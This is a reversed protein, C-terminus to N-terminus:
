RDVEINITTGMGPSSSFQMNGNLMRVRTELNVLGLGKKTNRYDFGIGNDEVLIHLRSGQEFIQIIALSARAHSIINQLIEQLMRYISLKASQEAVDLESHIQMDIRLDPYTRNITEAYMTLAEELTFDTVVDPMLNHATKRIQESTENLYGVVEEPLEEQGTSLRMKIVALMGGIGDHLERAIRGREIEEGEMKAKLVSIRSKNKFHWYFTLSLILVLSLIAGVSLMQANKHELARNQKAILLEKQALAKDKQATRFKVELENAVRLKEKSQISDKLLDYENRQQLAAKYRGTQEYIAALTSIAKLRDASIGTKSAVTLAKNLAKEANTFDNAQYYAFGLTYYPAITAYYTYTTPDAHLAKNLESIAKQPEGQALFIRAKVIYASQEVDPVKYRVATQLAKDAYYIAANYDDRLLAVEAKNVWIFSYYGGAKLTLMLQEGQDLYYAAKDYQDMHILVDAINNYAMVMNPSGKGSQTMHQLVAYYYPLAKEYNDQYFYTAGVNIFLTAMLSKMHSAQKIYFLANRYHLFCSDYDGKGLAVLGMRMQATAAMDYNGLQLSQTFVEDLINKASDANKWQLQESRRLLSYLKVSDITNIINLQRNLPTITSQIFPSLPLEQSYAMPM